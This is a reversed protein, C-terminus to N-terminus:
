EALTVEGTEFAILLDNEMAYKTLEQQINENWEIYELLMKQLTEQKTEQKTLSM